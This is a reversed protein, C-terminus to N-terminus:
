LQLIDVRVQLQNQLPQGLAVRDCLQFRQVVEVRENRGLVGLIHRLQHRAPHSM